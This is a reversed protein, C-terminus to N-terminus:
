VEKKGNEIKLSHPHPVSEKFPPPGIRQLNLIGNKEEVPSSHLISFVEQAFTKSFLKQKEGPTAEKVTPPESHRASRTFLAYIRVVHQSVPLEWEGNEMPWLLPTV